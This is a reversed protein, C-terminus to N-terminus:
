AGGGLKGEAWAAYLGDLRLKLQVIAKIESEDMQGSISMKVEAARTRGAIEEKLQTIEPPPPTKSEALRLMNLVAEPEMFRMAM